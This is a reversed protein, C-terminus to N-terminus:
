ISTCINNNCAPASVARQSKCREHMTYSIGFSTQIKKRSYKEGTFCVSFNIHIYINLNEQGMEEGERKRKRKRGSIFLEKIEQLKPPLWIIIVLKCTAAQCTVQNLTTCLCSTTNISVPLSNRVPMIYTHPKPQAWPESSTIRAFIYSSIPHPHM